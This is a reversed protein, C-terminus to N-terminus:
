YKYTANDAIIYQKKNYEFIYVIESESDIKYNCIRSFNLDKKNKIIEDIEEDTLSLTNNIIEEFNYELKDTFNKILFSVKEL